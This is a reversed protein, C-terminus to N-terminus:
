TMSGILCDASAAMVKAEKEMEAAEKEIAKLEADLEGDVGPNLAEKSRLMKEANLEIEREIGQENSEYSTKDSPLSKASEIAKSDYHIGNEKASTEDAFKALEDPSMKPTRGEIPAMKEHTTIGEPDFFTINEHMPQGDLHVTDVLGHYGAEKAAETIGKKADWGPLSDLMQGITEHVDFTSAPLEFKKEISKIFSEVKPDSLPTDTHLLKSEEPVTVREVKGPILQEEGALHNNAADFSSSM